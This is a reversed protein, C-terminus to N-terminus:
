VVMIIGAPLLLLYFVFPPIDKSRLYIVLFFADAALTIAGLWAAFGGTLLGTGLFALGGITLLVYTAFPWGPLTGRAFETIRTRRQCVSRTWALSGTFLAASAAAFLARTGSSYAGAALAAVAASAIIPGLAYFPQALRWSRIHNELLRLRTDPDRRMFVKPVGIQAGIFFALSGTILLLGATQVTTM